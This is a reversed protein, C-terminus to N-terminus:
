LAAAHLFSFSTISPAFCASAESTAGSSYQLVISLNIDSFKYFNNFLFISTFIFLFSLPISVVLNKFIEILLIKDRVSNHLKVHKKLVM